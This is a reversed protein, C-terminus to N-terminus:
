LPLSSQKEMLLRCALSLTLPSLHGPRHPVPLPQLFGSPAQRSPKNRNYTPCASVYERTDEELTAWWFRQQLVDRTRKIGPHCSFKSDHAWQLVDSRLSAPVYLRDSPCTSPGAQGETSTRMREEIEWTLSAVVCPSPLITETSTSDESGSFQWSLDDQKVNHSLLQIQHPLPGM